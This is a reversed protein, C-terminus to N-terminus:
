VSLYAEIKQNVRELTEQLFSAFKTSKMDAPSWSNTESDFAKPEEPAVEARETIDVEDLWRIQLSEISNQHGRGGLRRSLASSSLASVVLASQSHVFSRLLSVVSCRCSPAVVRRLPPAALKRIAPPRRVQLPLPRM